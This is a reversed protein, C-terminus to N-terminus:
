NNCFPHKVIQLINNSIINNINTTNLNNYSNVDSCYGKPCLITNGENTDYLKFVTHSNPNSDNANCKITDFNDKYIKYVSNENKCYTGVNDTEWTINRDKNACLAQVMNNDRQILNCDGEYNLNLLPECCSSFSEPPLNSSPESPSNYSSESPPNSPFINVPCLDATMNFFIHNKLTFQTTIENSNELNPIKNEERMCWGKAPCMTKTDKDFYMTINSTTNVGPINCKMNRIEINNNKIYEGDTFVHDLIGAGNIHPQEVNEYFTSLVQEELRSLENNM